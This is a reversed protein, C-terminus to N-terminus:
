ASRWPGRQSTIPPSPQIIKKKEKAAMAGGQSARAASVTAPRPDPAKWGVPVITALSDLASRRVCAVDIKKMIPWIPRNAPGTMAPSSSAAKPWDPGTLTVLRIEEQDLLAQIKAAEEERGVFPTAQAPINTLAANLSKLPPFDSPLGSIILQYVHEPRALDKLRHEGDDQVSVGHPLSGQVLSWTVGSLLVQGGYAISRLRATRNVESGYYDGLRLAATGTHLAIRIKLPRPTAWPEVFFQKQILVAATVADVASHFVAFESDGEGRARHLFGGNATVTNEVIQDHRAMARSTEEPATEWLQTSGEIDTFLFTITGTPLDETVM